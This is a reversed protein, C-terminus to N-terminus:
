VKQTPAPSCRSTTFSATGATLASRTYGARVKGTATSSGRWLTKPRPSWTTTLRRWNLWTKGSGLHDDVGKIEEGGKDLYPRKTSPDIPAAAIHVQEVVRFRKLAGCCLRAQSAVEPKEFWDADCVIVVEKDRLYRKAFKELEDANWQGVSPVSFVAGGHSLISDGKLSGEISFLVVEARRIKDVALPHVDLRQALKVERNKV